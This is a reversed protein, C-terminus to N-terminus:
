RVFKLFSYGFDVAADDTVDERQVERWENSQWEPFFTDGAFERHIQTIYLTNALPLAAEYLTAGGIVFVDPAHQCAHALATEISQFVLCGDPQYAANRSVIINTRQPLPRGISEFTKRGMVIPSGLTIKKFRKLDASLHWPMQNDLGIVRNSAMAVILSIKM